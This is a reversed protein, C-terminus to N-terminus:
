DHNMPLTEAFPTTGGVGFELLKNPRSSLWVWTEGIDEANGGTGQVGGGMRQKLGGGEAWDGEAHESVGSSYVNVGWCWKFGDECDHSAGSVQVWNNYVQREIKWM